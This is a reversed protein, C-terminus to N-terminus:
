GYCLELVLGTLVSKDEGGSKTDLDAQAVKRLAGRCWPLTTKQAAAMLKSAPYSKLKWLEAVADASRRTELAARAAYLQRLYKGLSAVIVQTPQQMGLLEGLLGLAKDCDKASVADTLEYIKADPQPTAVALIDQRTIRREKAYAAIKAIEQSLNTMLDGCYFTLFESQKTDIEHGLAKFHRFIWDNLDGQTQRAFEVALGNAKVAAYIKARTDPKYPILDYVFVLCLYDPLDELLGLLEKREGEGARFIDYDWVLVLTRDNMMPLCDCIQVIERATCAKGDLTKFNFDETGAPLLESKIRGLYHDRLYTEEGYLVYLRRLQKAKVDKKLTKLGIDEGKKTM